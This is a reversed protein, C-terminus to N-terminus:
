RSDEDQVGADRREFEAEEFQAAVPRTDDRRSKSVVDRPFRGGLGGGLDDAPAAILGDVRDATADDM